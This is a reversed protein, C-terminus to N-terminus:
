GPQRMTKEKVEDECSTFEAIFDALAQRKIATQPHYTIDYQSLEVFM